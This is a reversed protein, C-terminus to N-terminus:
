CVAKEHGEKREKGQSSFIRLAIFYSTAERLAKEHIADGVKKTRKGRSNRPTFQIGDGQPAYKGGHSDRM